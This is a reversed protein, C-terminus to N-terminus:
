GKPFTSGFMGVKLLTSIFIMFFIFGGVWWGVWWGVLGGIWWGVLGGVWWGVFWDVFWDVNPEVKGLPQFTQSL